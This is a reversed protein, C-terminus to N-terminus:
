LADKAKSATEPLTMATTKKLSVVRATRPKPNFCDPFRM